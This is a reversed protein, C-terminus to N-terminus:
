KYPFWFANSTRSTISMTMWSACREHKVQFRSWSRSYFRSFVHERYPRSRTIRQALSWACYSSLLSLYAWRCFVLSTFFECINWGGACRYVAENSIRTRGPNESWCKIGVGEDATHCTWWTSRLRCGFRYCWRLFVFWTLTSRIALSDRHCRDALGIHVYFISGFIFSLFRISFFPLM